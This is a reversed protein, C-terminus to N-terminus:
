RDKRLPNLLPLFNNPIPFDGRGGKVLPEEDIAPTVIRASVECVVGLFRDHDGKARPRKQRASPPAPPSGVSLHCTPEIWHRNRRSGSRAGRQSRPSHTAGARGSVSPVSGIPDGSVPSSGRWLSSSAKERIVFRVNARTRGGKRFCTGARELRPPSQPPNTGGTGAAMSPVM